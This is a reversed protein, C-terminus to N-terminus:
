KKNTMQSFRFIFHVCEQIFINLVTVNIICKHQSKIFNYFETCSMSWNHKLISWSSLTSISLLSKRDTWYKKIYSFIRECDRNAGSFNKSKLEIWDIEVQWTIITCHAFINCILVIIVFQRMVRSMHVSSYCEIIPSIHMSLLKLQLRM